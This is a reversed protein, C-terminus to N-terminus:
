LWAAAHQASTCPMVISTMSPSNTGSFTPWFAISSASVVSNSPSAMHRAETLTELRGAPEKPRSLAVCHSGDIWDPIIRLRERVVPAHIRHSSFRDGRCLLVKDASDAVSPAAM